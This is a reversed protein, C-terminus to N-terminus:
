EKKFDIYNLSRNINFNKLINYKELGRYFANQLCAFFKILYECNIEYDEGRRCIGICLNNIICSECKNDIDMKRRDLKSLESIFNDLPEYITSLQNTNNHCEYLNGDLDMHLTNYDEYCVGYIPIRNTNIGDSIYKCFTNYIYYMPYLENNIETSNCIDIIQFMDNEFHEWDLELLSKNCGRSFVLHSFSYSPTSYHRTMYEKHIEGFSEILELPYCYPTIVGSLKLNNCNLIANRSRKNDFVNIKRTKISSKGDTSLKILVDYTNFFNSMERNMLIGNTIISYRINNTKESVLEIMNKITDYFLLPEGGIFYLTMIQLGYINTANKKVLAKHTYEAQEVIFNIIDTENKMVKPLEKYYEESATSEKDHQVCYICNGNCEKGLMIFLADLEM